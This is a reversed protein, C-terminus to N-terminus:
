RSTETAGQPVHTERLALQTLDLTFKTGTNSLKQALAPHGLKQDLARVLGEFLVSTSETGEQAEGEVHV